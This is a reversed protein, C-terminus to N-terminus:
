DHLSLCPGLAWLSHTRNKTPKTTRSTAGTDTQLIGESPKVRARTPRPTEGTRVAGPHIDTGQPTRAMERVADMIKEVEERATANEGARERTVQTKTKRTEAAVVTITTARTATTM